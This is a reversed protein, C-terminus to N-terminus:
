LSSNGIARVEKRKIRIAAGALEAVLADLTPQEFDELVQIAQVRELDQKHIKSSIYGPKQLGRKADSMNLCFRNYAFESLEFANDSTAVTTDDYVMEQSYNDFLHISNWSHATLHRFEDDTGSELSFVTSLSVESWRPQGYMTYFIISDDSSDDCVMGRYRTPDGTDGFTDVEATGSNYWASMWDLDIHAPPVDWLGSIGHIPWPLYSMTGKRADAGLTDLITFLNNLETILSSFSTANGPDFAIPVFLRGNLDASLKPSLMRKVQRLLGPFISHNEFKHYYNIFYLSMGVDSAGFNNAREYMYNPVLGTYPFITSWDSHYTLHNIVKISYLIAYVRTLAAVYRYFLTFSPADTNQTLGMQMIAQVKPWVYKEFSQAYPTIAIMTNGSGNGTDLVAGVDQDSIDGAKTLGEYFSRYPYVQRFVVGPGNTGDTLDFDGTINGVGLISAGLVSNTLMNQHTSTEQKGTYTTNDQQQKRRRSM